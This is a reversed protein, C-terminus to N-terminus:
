DIRLGNDDYKIQVKNGDEDLKYMIKKYLSDSCDKYLLNYLYFSAGGLKLNDFTLMIPSQVIIIDTSTENYCGMCMLPIREVDIFNFVLNLM